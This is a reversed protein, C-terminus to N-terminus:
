IKNNDKAVLYAGICVGIVCVSFMIMCSRLAPLEYWLVNFMEKLLRLKDTLGRIILWIIFDIM